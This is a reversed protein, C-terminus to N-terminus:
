RATTVERSVTVEPPHAYDHWLRDLEAADPGGDHVVFRYRAIHPRGPEISWDGAQSPAWNFFPETPHIRMPEPFRFNQPHGLIGVGALVGDVYGGVHAWRARTGHGNSRDKGESTLFFANKEGYWQDHGRFGVGGYRYEPLILPSSSATTQIVELDFIRYPRGSGQVNYVHVIWTENLADKPTPGTLDVYRHRARVGGHVPGSWTTDLAVPKVTGKRDGVNWFDPTRGEFVTNTWAAWIGHHHLHDAPYDGTVIRGAPTYVPHIYGGRKFVPDIGPRPLETEDANYRLVPRGAVLFTVAGPERRAEVGATSAPSGEVAELRYRRTEGAGLRDLIFVARGDGTPQVPVARGSEDVLRFAQGSLGDPLSFFVPTELRTYPGAAVTVTYSAPAPAAQRASGACAAAGLCVASLLALYARM